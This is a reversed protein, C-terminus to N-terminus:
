RHQIRSITHSLEEVTISRSFHGLNRHITELFEHDLWVLQITDEILQFASALTDVLLNYGHLVVSIVVTDGPGVKPDHGPPTTPNRIGPANIRDNWDPKNGTENNGIDSHGTLSSM